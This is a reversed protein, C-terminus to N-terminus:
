SGVVKAKYESSAKLVVTLVLANVAYTDPPKAVPSALPVPDTSKTPSVSVGLEYAPAAPSASLSTCTLAAPLPKSNVPISEITSAVYISPLPKRRLLPPVKVPAIAVCFMLGSPTSALSIALGPSFNLLTYAFKKWPCCMPITVPSTVPLGVPLTDPSTVPSTVPFIVEWTCTCEM